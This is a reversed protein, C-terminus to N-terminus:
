SQAMLSHLDYLDLKSIQSSDPIFQFIEVFVDNIKTRLVTTSEKLASLCLFLQENQRERMLNISIEHLRDKTNVVGIIMNTDLSFNM